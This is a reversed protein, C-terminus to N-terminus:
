ESTKGLELGRLNEIGARCLRVPVCSLCAGGYGGRSNERALQPGFRDAHGNLASTELVLSQRGAERYPGDRGPAM